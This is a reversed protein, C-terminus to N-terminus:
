VRKIASPLYHHNSSQLVWMGGTITYAGVDIIAPDGNFGINGHYVGNGLINNFRVLKSAKVTLINAIHLTPDLDTRDLMSAIFSSPKPHGGFFEDLTDSPLHELFDPYIFLDEDPHLEADRVRVAILCPESIHDATGEAILMALEPASSLYVGVQTSKSKSAILGQEKISELNYLGTAHFLVTGHGASEITSIKAM